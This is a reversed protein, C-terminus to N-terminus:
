LNLQLSISNYSINSQHQPTIMLAERKMSIKVKQKTVASSIFFPLSAVAMGMGGFIIAFGTANKHTAHGQVFTGVAVCTAGGGLLILGTNRQNKSKKLYDTSPFKLNVETQQSRGYFAILAMVLIIFIKKM